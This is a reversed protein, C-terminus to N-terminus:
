EPLPAPEPILPCASCIAHTVDCAQAGVFVIEAPPPCPLVVPAALAFRRNGNKPPFTVGDTVPTSGLVTPPTTTSDLCVATATVTLVLPTPPRQQNGLGAIQGAVAFEGGVISSACATFHPNQAFSLGSTGVLTALMVMIGYVIRSM